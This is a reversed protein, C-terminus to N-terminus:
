LRVTFPVLKDAKAKMAYVVVPPIDAGPLITVPATLQGGTFPAASPIENEIVQIMKPANQSVLGGILSWQANGTYLSAAIGGLALGVQGIKVVKSQPLRNISDAIIQQAVAPTVPRLQIVAGYFRAPTVTVAMTGDNSLWCAWQGMTQEGISKTAAMPQPSCSVSVQPIPVLVQARLSTSALSLCLLLMAVRAYFYAIGFPTHSSQKQWKAGDETTVTYGVPMTDGAPVNRINEPEPLVPPVYPKVAPPLPPMACVPETGEAPYAWLAKSNTPDTFTGVVMANPPQPPNSNDIRGAAVNVAWSNFATMYTSKRQANFQAVQQTVAATTNAMAAELTTSEFGLATDLM